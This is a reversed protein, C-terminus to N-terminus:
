ISSLCIFDVVQGVTKLQGAEDDPIELEFAEELFMPIEVLGLEDARLDEVLRADPTVIDESVGLYEAIIQTVRREIDTGDACAVRTSATTIPANSGGADAVKEASTCDLGTPEYGNLNIDMITEVSLEFHGWDRDFAFGFSLFGADEFAKAVEIPLAAQDRRYRMKNGEPDIDIAIAWGHASVKATGRKLRPNYIGGFKRVHKELGREALLEFARKFYPVAAEHVKIKSIKQDKAWAVEMPFPLQVDAFRPTCGGMVGPPGLVREILENTASSHVSGITDANFAPIGIEDPNEGSKKISVSAMKEIEETNLETLVGARVLFLLSKARDVEGGSQLLQEVIKYQFQLEQAKATRSAEADASKEKLEQQLAAIEKERAVRNREEVALIQTKFETQTLLQTFDQEKKAYDVAFNAGIAILGTLAVALPTNHWWKRVELAHSRDLSRQELAKEFVLKRFEPDVDDQQFLAHSQVADLASLIPQNTDAERDARM